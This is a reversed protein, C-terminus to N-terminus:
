EGTVPDKLEVQRVKGLKDLPGPWQDGGQNCTEFDGVITIVFQDPHIYKNAVEQVRAKTVRRVNDRFTQYYDMPKGTMELEAFNAM